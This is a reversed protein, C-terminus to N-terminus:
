RCRGNVAYVRANGYGSSVDAVQDREAMLDKLYDRLEALTVHQAEFAASGTTRAYKQAELTRRISAQVLAIEATYEEATAFYM